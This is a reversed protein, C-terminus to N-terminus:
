GVWKEKLFDIFCRTRAPLLRSTTVAYVPVSATTWDPLIRVLRGAQLDAQVLLDPLAAIGQGLVALRQIVGPSNIRYRGQIPLTVSGGDRHHLVWQRPSGSTMLLCAHRELVQPSDPVGYRHLYDPAAHLGGSVRMLRTAVLGSDSLEGMRIALDFPEGVLDVRRPTVDIVFDINPYRASFEPLLPSLAECAFDAAVSLRLTGGPAHHSAKLQDHVRRVEEIIPLVQEYYQRGAETLEVRRTTRSLLQRGLQKELLSIRRSLTSQPMGLREAARSFNHQQAVAVFQALTNLDDLPAPQDM